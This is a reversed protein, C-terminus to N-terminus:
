VISLHIMWPIHTYNYCLKELARTVLGKGSYPEGLWFEIEGSEYVGDGQFILNIAGAICNDVVIAQSIQNKTHQNKSKRIFMRADDLTCPYPYKLRIHDTVEPNNLLKVMQPADTLEWDRLQFKM